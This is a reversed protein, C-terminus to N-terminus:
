EMILGRAHLANYSWFARASRDVAVSAAGYIRPSAVTFSRSGASGCIGSRALMGKVFASPAYFGTHVIRM